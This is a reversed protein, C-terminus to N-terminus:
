STCVCQSQGRASRGAPSSGDLATAAARSRSASLVVGPAEPRGGEEERVELLGSEAEWPLRRLMSLSLEAVMLASSPGGPDDATDDDIVVVVVVAVAPPPPPLPPPPVGAGKSVM